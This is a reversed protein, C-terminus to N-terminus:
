YKRTHGCVACKYLCCWGIRVDFHNAQTLRHDTHALARAREKVYPLLDGFQSQRHCMADFDALDPNCKGECVIRRTEVPM